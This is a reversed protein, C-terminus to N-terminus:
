TLTEANGLSKDLYIYTVRTLKALSLHSNEAVWESFSQTGVKIRKNTVVLPSKIKDWAVGNLVM